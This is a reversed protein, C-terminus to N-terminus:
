SAIGKLLAQLQKLKGLAETNSDREVEVSLAVEEIRGALKKLRLALEDGLAVLETSLQGLADLASPSVKKIAIVTNSSPLTM